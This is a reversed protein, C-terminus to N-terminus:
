ILWAQVYAVRKFEVQRGGREKVHPCIFSSFTILRTTSSLLGFEPHCSVPLQQCKFVLEADSRHATVSAHNHCWVKSQRRPRCKNAKICQMPAASNPATRATVFHRTQQRIRKLWFVKTSSDSVSDIKQAYMSLHVWLLRLPIIFFFVRYFLLKGTSELTGCNLNKCLSISRCAKMYIYITLFNFSQM